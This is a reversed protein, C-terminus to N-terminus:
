LRQQRFTRLRTYKGRKIHRGCSRQLTHVRQTNKEERLGTRM